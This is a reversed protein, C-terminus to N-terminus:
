GRRAPAPLCVACVLPQKRAGQTSTRRARRQPKANSRKMGPHQGVTKRECMKSAWASHRPRKTNARTPCCRNHAHKSPPHSPNPTQARPTNAKQHKRAQKHASAQPHHSLTTGGGRAGAQKSAHEREPTPATPTHPPEAHGIPPPRGPLPPVVNDRGM